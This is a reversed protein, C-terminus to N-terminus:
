TTVRPESAARVHVNSPLGEGVTAHNLSPSTTLPSLGLYLTEVTLSVTLVKVM